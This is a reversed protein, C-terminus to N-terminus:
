KPLFKESLMGNLLVKYSVSTLCNMLNILSDPFGYAKPVYFISTWSLKDFAMSLDMKLAVLANSGKKMSVIKHSLEHSLIINDSMQRKLVFAHQFDSIIVPLTSRLRKM